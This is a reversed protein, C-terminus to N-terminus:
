NFIRFFCFQSYPFSQFASPSSILSSNPSIITGPSDSTSYILHHFSCKSPNSWFSSKSSKLFSYCSRRPINSLLISEYIEGTSFVVMGLWCQADVVLSVRRLYSSSNVLGLFSRDHSTTSIAWLKYLRSEYKSLDGSQPSIAM